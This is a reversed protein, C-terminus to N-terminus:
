NKKTLVENLDYMVEGAIEDMISWMAKKDNLLDNFSDYGAEKFNVLAGLSAIIKSKTQLMGQSSNTDEALSLFFYGEAINPMRYKLVGKDTQKELWNM